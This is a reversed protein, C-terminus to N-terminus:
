PATGAEPLPLRETVYRVLYVGGKLPRSASESDWNWGGEGRALGAVRNGGLDFLYARSDGAAGTLAPVTRGGLYTLASGQARVNMGTGGKAPRLSSGPDFPLSFNPLDHRVVLSSFKSKTDVPPAWDMTSGGYFTQLSVQDVLAVAAGVNGRWKIKTMSAVKEGNLWAEAIGDAVGPTNVVVRETIRNWVGKKFARANAFRDEDGCGSIRDQHYYYIEAEGNARWMFRASWGDPVIDACGSTHSGGVLGPLKGGKVWDWANDFQVEYDLYYEKAPPIDVFAKPVGKASSGGILGAPYTVSFGPIVSVVQAPIDGRFPGLASLAGFAGFTSPLLWLVM